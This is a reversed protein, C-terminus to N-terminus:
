ASPCGGGGVALRGELFVEWSGTLRSRATVSVAYATESNNNNNNSHFSIGGIRPRSFSGLIQNM